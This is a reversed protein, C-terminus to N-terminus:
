RSDRVEMLGGYGGVYLTGTPEIWLGLYWGDFRWGSGAMNQWVMEGTRFDLATWYYVDLGHPHQAAVKGTDMKRAVTYILGIKSSLHRSVTSAVETNSWIKHRGKGDPDIDIRKHGPLSLTM